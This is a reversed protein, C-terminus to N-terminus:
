SSTMTPARFASCAPEGDAEPLAKTNRPLAEPIALEIHYAIDSLTRARHEALEWPIGLDTPPPDAAECGALAAVGLASLLLTSRASRPM